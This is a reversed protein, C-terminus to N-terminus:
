KQDQDEVEEDQEIIEEEITNEEEDDDFIINIVNELNIANQINERVKRHGYRYINNLMNGTIGQSHSEEENPHNGINRQNRSSNNKSNNHNRTHRQSRNNNNPHSENRNNDNQQDREKEQCENKEQDQKEKVDQGEEQDQDEEIDNEDVIETLEEELPATDHDDEFIDNLPHYEFIDQQDYMDMDYINEMYNNNHPISHYYDMTMNAHDNDNNYFFTTGSLNNNDTCNRYDMSGSPSPHHDSHNDSLESEDNMLTLSCTDSSNLLKMNYTPWRVFPAGLLVIFNERNLTFWLIISFYIYVRNTTAYYNIIYNYFKRYIFQFFNPKNLDDRIGLYVSVTVILLLILAIIWLKIYTSLLVRSKKNSFRWVLPNIFVALFLHIFIVVLAVLFAVIFLSYISFLDINGYMEIMKKQKEVMSKKLTTFDEGISLIKRKQSNGGDTLVTTNTVQDMSEILINWELDDRIMEFLSELRKFFIETGFFNYFIFKLYKNFEEKENSFNMLYDFAPRGTDHRGKGVFRFNEYDMYTDNQSWNNFPSSYYGEHYNWKNKKTDYYLFYNTGNYLYGHQNNVIYDLAMTKLFTHTEFHKQIDNLSTPSEFLQFLSVLDEKSHFKKPNEEGQYWYNSYNDTTSNNLLKSKKLNKNSNRNSQKLNFDGVDNMPSYQSNMQGYWESTHFKEKFYDTTPNEKILYFGLPIDNFYVRTFAVQASPIELLNCIDTYMKNRLMLNDISNSLLQISRKNFLNSNSSYSDDLPVGTKNFQNTSSNYFDDLSVSTKNFRNNNGNYSDDLDDLPISTTNFRDSNSNYTNNQSSSLPEFSRSYNKYSLFYSSKKPNNHNRFYYKNSYYTTFYIDTNILDAFPNIELLLDKYRRVSYPTIITASVNLSPINPEDVRHARELNKFKNIDGTLYISSIFQDSFLESDNDQHIGIKQLTSSTTSLAPHQYISSKNFFENLVEESDSGKDLPQVFREFLEEEEIIKNKDEVRYYVYHYPVSKDLDYEGKWIPYDTDDLEFIKNNFKLGVTTVNRNVSAVVNFFKAYVGIFPITFCYFFIIFWKLPMM